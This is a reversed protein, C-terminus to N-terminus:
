YHLDISKSVENQLTQTGSTYRETVDLKVTYTDPSKQQHPARWRVQAGTGTFTGALPTASWGFILQDVPTEADQVSATLTVDQEAEARVSSTVLSNIVPPTNPRPPPPPDPTPTSPVTRPSTPTESCAAGLAAALAISMVIRSTTSRVRM